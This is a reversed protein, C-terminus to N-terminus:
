KRLAVYVLGAALIVWSIAVIKFVNGGTLELKGWYGAGAHRLNSPHMYISRLRGLLLAGSVAGAAFVMAPLGWKTTQPILALTLGCVPSFVAGPPDLPDAYADALLTVALVIATPIALRVLGSSDQLLARDLLGAAFAFAGFLSIAEVLLLTADTTRRIRSWIVCPIVCAAEFLYQPMSRYRERLDGLVEERCAPPLLLGLGDEVIPPPGSEM